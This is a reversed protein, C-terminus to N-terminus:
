VESSNLTNRDTNRATNRDRNRDPHEPVPTIRQLLEVLDKRLATIPLTRGPEVATPDADKGEPTNGQVATLAQAGDPTLSISIDRQGITRLSKRIYGISELNNLTRRLSQSTIRIHRALRAQNTTGIEALAQLATLGSPSLKAAHLDKAVEREWLRAATSLLRSTSWQDPSMVGDTGGPHNDPYSDPHANDGGDNRGSDM